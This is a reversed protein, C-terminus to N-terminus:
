MCATGTVEVDGNDSYNYKVPTTMKLINLVQKLSENDIKLTIRCQKVADDQININVGYWKSLRKVVTELKENHFLLKGEKWSTYYQTEVVAKKLSISKKSFTVRENPSLSALNIDKSLPTTSEKEIEVAGTVLTTEIEDDGGYSRVNFSTGLVRISLKDVKVTFPANKNKVVDFFAEGELHVIRKDADFQSPYYLSSEANLWVKSGDPLTVLKREMKGSKATQMSLKDVTTVIPNLYMTGIGLMFAITVIAAVRLYWNVSLIKAESSAKIEKEVNKWLERQVANHPQDKEFRLTLIFHKAEDILAKKEPHESLLQNWFKDSVSDPKLVWLHFGEDKIFDNTTYDNYGMKKFKPKNHQIAKKSKM